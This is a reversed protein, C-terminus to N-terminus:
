DDRTLGGKLRHSAFKLILARRATKTLGKAYRLKGPAKEQTYGMALIEAKKLHKQGSHFARRAVLRGNPARYLRSEECQGCYAWSAARYVGGHHNANPDAYAVIAKVDREAQRFLGVTKSLAMTLLNSDHGDPAWLRSLEWVDGNNATPGLLFRAINYNPPISYIILCSGFRYYHSKGSPITGLYHSARITAAARVRDDASLYIPGEKITAM